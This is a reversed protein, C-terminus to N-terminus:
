LKQVDVLHLFPHLVPNHVIEVRCVGSGALLHTCQYLKGIKTEIPRVGRFVFSDCIHQKPVNETSLLPVLTLTSHPYPTRETIPHVSQSPNKHQEPAKHILLSIRFPMFITTGHLDDCIARRKRRSRSINKRWNRPLKNLMACRFTIAFHSQSFVFYLLFIELLGSYCQRRM